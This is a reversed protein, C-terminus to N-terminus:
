MAKGTYEIIADRAEVTTFPRVLVLLKMLERCYVDPVIDARVSLQQGFKVFTAGERECIERLRVARREPSDRGRLRDWWSRAFFSILATSWAWLRGLAGFVSAEFVEVQRMPPPVFHESRIPFQRRRPMSAVIGPAARPDLPAGGGDPGSAPWADPEGGHVADIGDGDHRGDLREGAVALLRARGAHMQETRWHRVAAAVLRRIHDTRRGSPAAGLRHGTPGDPPAWSAQM